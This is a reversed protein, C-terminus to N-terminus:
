EENKDVLRQFQKLDMGLGNLIREWFTDKGIPHIVESARGELMNHIATIADIPTALVESSWRKQSVFPIVDGFCAVEDYDGRYWISGRLEGNLALYSHGTEFSAILLFGSPWDYRDALQNESPDWNCIADLWTLDCEDQANMLYNRNELHKEIEAVSLIAPSVEHVGLRLRSGNSIETLFVRYARPLTCGLKAELKLVTEEAAPPTRIEEQREDLQITMRKMAAGLTPLHRQSLFSDWQWRSPEEDLLRRRESRIKCSEDSEVPTGQLRVLLRVYPELIFNSHEYLFDAYVLQRDLDSYDARIMSLLTEEQNM